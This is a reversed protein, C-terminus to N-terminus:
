ARKGIVEHDAGSVVPPMDFSDPLVDGLDELASTHQRVVIFPSRVRAPHQGVETGDDDVYERGRLSVVVLEVSQPVLRDRHDPNLLDV